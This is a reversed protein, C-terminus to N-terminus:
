RAGGAFLLSNTSPAIATFSPPQASFPIAIPNEAPDAKFNPHSVNLRRGQNKIPETTTIRKAAATACATMEASPPEPSVGDSRPATASHPNPVSMLM